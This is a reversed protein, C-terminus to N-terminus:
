NSMPVRVCVQMVFEIRAVECMGLQLLTKLFITQTLTNGKILLVRIQM